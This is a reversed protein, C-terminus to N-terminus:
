STKQSRSLLPHTPCRLMHSQGARVRGARWLGRAPSHLSLGRLASQQAGGQDGGGRACEARAQGRQCQDLQEAAPHLRVTHLGLGPLDRAATPQGPMLM